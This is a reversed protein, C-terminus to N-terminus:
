CYYVHNWVHKEVYDDSDVFGIYDGQVIAIGANRASSAGGNDKHIVKIRNDKQSYEDCIAGSTDPLGDDVLVIEIEKLSQLVLSDVCRRITDEAKFVPVVITVKPNM